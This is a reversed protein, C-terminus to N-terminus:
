DNDEAGDARDALYLDGATNCRPLSDPAVAIRRLEGADLWNVQCRECSDLVVNGPGAYIHGLM